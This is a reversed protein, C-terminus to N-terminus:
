TDINGDNTGKTPEPEVAPKDEHLDHGGNGNPEFTIITMRSCKPCRTEIYCGPMLVARMLLRSCGDNRCRYDRPKRHGRYHLVSPEIAVPAAPLTM